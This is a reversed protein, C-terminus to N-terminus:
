GPLTAIRIVVLSQADEAELAVLPLADVTPPLRVSHTVAACIFEALRRGADDEVLQSRTPATALLVQVTVM